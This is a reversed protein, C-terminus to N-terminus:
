ATLLASVETWNTATGAEIAAKAAQFNGTARETLDLYAHTDTMDQLTADRGLHEQAHSTTWQGWGKITDILSQDWGGALGVGDILTQTLPNSLDLGVACMADYGAKVLPDSSAQLTGLVLASDAPALTAMLYRVTYPTSDTKVIDVTNLKDVADQDDTAQFDAWAGSLTSVTDYINAM